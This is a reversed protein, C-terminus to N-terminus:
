DNLDIDTQVDFSRNIYEHMAQESVHGSFNAVDGFSKNKGIQNTIFSKRIEHSAIQKNIGLEKLASKMFKRYTNPAELGHIRLDDVMLHKPFKDTDNIHEPMYGFLCEALKRHIPVNKTTIKQNNRAKKKKVTWTFINEGNANTTMSVSNWIELPTKLQSNKAESRYLNLHVESIRFCGYYQIMFFWLRKKTEEINKGGTYNWLENLEKDNLIDFEKKKVKITFKPIDDHFTHISKLDNYVAKIKKLITKITRDSLGTKNTRETRYEERFFEVMRAWVLKTFEDTRIKGKANMFSEINKGISKWRTKTEKKEWNPALREMSNNFADLFYPEINQINREKYEKLWSECREIWLPRNKDKVWEKVQINNSHYFGEAKYQLFKSVDYLKRSVERLQETEIPNNFAKTTIIERKKFDWNDPHVMIGLSKDWDLNSHKIRIYISQPKKGKTNKSGFRLEMKM